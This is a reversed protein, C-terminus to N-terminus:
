FSSFLNVKNVFAASESQVQNDDSEGQVFGEYALSPSPSERDNSESSVQEIQADNFQPPDDKQSFCYFSHVCYNQFELRILVSRCIYYM